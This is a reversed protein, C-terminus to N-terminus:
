FQVTQDTESNVCPTKDRSKKFVGYESKMMPPLLQPRHTPPVERRKNQSQIFKDRSPIAKKLDPFNDQTMAFEKKTKHNVPIPMLRLNSGEEEQTSNAATLNENISDKYYQQQNLPIIPQDKPTSIQLNSHRKIEAPFNRSQELVQPAPHQTDTKM